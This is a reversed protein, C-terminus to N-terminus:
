TSAFNSEKSIVNGVQGIPADRTMPRVANGRASNGECTLNGTRLEADLMYLNHDIRVVDSRAANCRTVSKPLYAYALAPDKM